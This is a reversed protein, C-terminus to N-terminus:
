NQTVDIVRICTAKHWSLRIQGSLGIYPVEFVSESPIATVTEGRIADGEPHGLSGDGHSTSSNSIGAFIWRVRQYPVDSKITMLSRKGLPLMWRVGLAPTDRLFASLAEQNPGLAGYTLRTINDSRVCVRSELRVFRRERYPM